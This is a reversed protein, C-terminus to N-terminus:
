PHSGGPPVACGGAPSAAPQAAVVDRVAQLVSLEHVVNDIVAEGVPGSPETPDLDGIRGRRRSADPVADHALHKDGGVARRMSTCVQQATAAHFVEFSVSDAPPQV